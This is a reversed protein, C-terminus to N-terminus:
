SFIYGQGKITQIHNEGINDTIKDRLRKIAVNISKYQVDFKEKWVNAVLDDRSVLKNTNKLFELFLSKELKTLDLLEDNVYFRNNESFYTINKYKIIEYNKYYRRFLNKIRAFFIKLDCQFPMCDDVGENFAKLIFDKDYNRYLAIIPFNYPHMRLNSILKDEEFELFSEDIIAMTINEENIISEVLSLRDTVIVDYNVEILKSEIFDASSENKSIMLITGEM